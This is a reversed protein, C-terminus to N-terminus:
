KEKKICTGLALGILMGLSIGYTINITGGVSMGLLMGLLGYNEYEEDTSKKPKNNFVFFIALSLGILIWPLATM